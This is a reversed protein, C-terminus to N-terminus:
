AYSTRLAHSAHFAAGGGDRAAGHWPNRSIVVTPVANMVDAEPNRWRQLLGSASTMFATGVFSIGICNIPDMISVCLFRAPLSSRLWKKFLRASEQHAQSKQLKAADLDSDSKSFLKGVLIGFMDVITTTLEEARIVLFACLRTYRKSAPYCRLRQVRVKKVVSAWQRLRNTTMVGWNLPAPM